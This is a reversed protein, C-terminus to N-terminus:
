HSYFLSLLDYVKNKMTFKERVYKCGEKAIQEGTDLYKKYYEADFILKNNNDKLIPVYHVNKILGLKDLEESYEFFGLTGCALIEIIKSLPFNLPYKAFAFFAAKYSSLIKFYNLGKKDLDEKRIRSPYELHYIYKILENNNDDKNENYYELLEKRVPYWDGCSGSLIIKNTRDNYDTDLYSFYNENFCYFSQFTKSLYPSKINEFYLRSPSIIMDPKDFFPFTIPKKYAVKLHRNYEHLDDEWIIIKINKSKLINYSIDSLVFPFVANQIAFIISDNFIDKKVDELFINYAEKQINEISKDNYTLNIEPNMLDNRIKSDQIFNYLYVLNIGADYFYKKTLYFMKSILMVSESINYREKLSHIVIVKKM